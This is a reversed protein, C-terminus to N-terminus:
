GAHMLGKLFQATAAATQEPPESPIGSQHATVPGDYGISRLGQFVQPFDIGGPEHIPILDFSVPGRCWTNLTVDGDPKLIQNQLYVNVIWPALRELTELGYDQGCIELNAPEYILGFNPRDIKKLTQEIAEVTEFLSLTHCQHVLQIGVDAAQDAAQQAFPIDDETKLAVRILPAELTRALDLFPGINRLCSPGDDNNYVVDFDGTVMTVSLGQERIIREAERQAEPTSQVGVQSARMCLADYGAQKALVALEELPIRAHEKSLFEEAIRVSLSLKM